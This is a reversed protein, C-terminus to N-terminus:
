FPISSTDIPPEDVPQLPVRAPQPASMKPPTVPPKKASGAAAKLLSGFRAELKGIEEESAGVPTPTYDGPNLWSAKYYTKGEYDEAKVTIQVVLDRPPPSAVQRLSGGWDLSAALQQVTKVNPSGDKKVVFFDGWVRVEDYGTWDAWEGGNLEALVVFEVSIAVAASNQFTKVRWSEARAKFIGARDLSSM